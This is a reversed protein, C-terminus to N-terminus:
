LMRGNKDFLLMCGHENINFSTHNPRDSDRVTGPPAYPYTPFALSAYPDIQEHYHVIHDVNPNEFMKALLPANLTAKMPARGYVIHKEHDVREVFTFSDLERKGHATTQFGGQEDRVAVTGFILGSETHLFKEKYSKLLESLKCTANVSFGRDPIFETSYYTDHLMEWIWQALDSQKMPHVGREKTVVFKEDLNEADNAIVATAKAELVISYAARILEEHSACSLLKFGFLHAKPAVKKVEDIVRPAIQFNIPIIDGPKYDHSPFKGKIPNAPILNAVAAGLVIGEMSPAMNRVISQYHDFGNHLLVEIKPHKKPVTTATLSSSVYCVEAGLEALREALNCMLGGKFRNTIIKVDDLYAHVPGGTILIKKM